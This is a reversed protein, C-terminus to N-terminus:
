EKRQTMRLAFRLIGTDVSKAEGGPLPRRTGVRRTLAGAGAAIGDGWGKQAARKTDDRAFGLSGPDEVRRRRADPRAEAWNPHRTGRWKKDATHWHCRWSHQPLPRAEPAPSPETERSFIDRGKM